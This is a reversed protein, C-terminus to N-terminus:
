LAQRAPRLSVRVLGTPRWPEAPGAAAVMAPVNTYDLSAVPHPTLHLGQLVSNLYGHQTFISLWVLGAALDSIALPFSWAYLFFGRARLRSQALVGMALAIALELPIIVALLLFTNRIALGFDTDTALRQFNALTWQGAATQFAVGLAGLIPWGLFVLLFLVAPAMLLYPELPRLRGRLGRPTLRRGDRPRAAAGVQDSVARHEAPGAALLGGQRHQAGAPDPR